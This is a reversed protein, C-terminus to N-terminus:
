ALAAEIALAVGLLDADDGNARALMLGVPLDGPAQCPM